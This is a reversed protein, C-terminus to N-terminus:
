SIPFRRAARAAEIRHYAAHESLHLVRTCYTFLSSCGEGLYLRRADLEGLLALVDATMLREDRTVRAITELLDKDTLKDISTTTMDRSLVVIERAQRAVVGVIAAPIRARITKSNSRRTQAVVSRLSREM